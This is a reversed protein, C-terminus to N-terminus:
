PLKKPQIKELNEVTFNLDAGFINLSKAEGMFNGIKATLDNKLIKLGTNFVASFAPKEETGASSLSKITQSIYISWLAAIIVITIVTGGILWRKKREQDSNQLDNLFNQLKQM